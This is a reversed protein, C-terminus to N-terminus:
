GSREDERDCFWRLARAADAHAGHGEVVRAGDEGGGYGTRVLLGTGGMAVGAAVDLQKDGIMVSRGLAVLQDEAAREYLATGPKRCACGADPAHPCLYIADLEVGEARLLRRMRAMVEHARRLTFKGRGVGSQNSVVIVPHGAARTERLAPAVGAILEVGEPDSLYGREVILTGDRDLFAAARPAPGRSRAIARECARELVEVDTHAPDAEAPVAEGSWLAFRELPVGHAGEAVLPADAEEVLALSWVSDWAWRDLANWRAVCGAGTALVMAGARLRWARHASRLTAGTGVVVDAREGRLADDAEFVGGLLVRHGRAALGEVARRVRPSTTAWGSGEVAVKVGRGEHM